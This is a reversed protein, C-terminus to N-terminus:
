FGQGHLFMFVNVEQYYTIFCVLTNVNAANMLVRCGGLISGKLSKRCLELFEEFTGLLTKYPLCNFYPYLTPMEPSGLEQKLCLGM